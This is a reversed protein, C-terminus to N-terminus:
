ASICDLGERESRGPSQKLTTIMRMRAGRNMLNGLIYTVGDVIGWAINCGLVGILLANSHTAEFAASTAATFSLVMILGCIVEALRNEPTFYKHIFSPGPVHQNM